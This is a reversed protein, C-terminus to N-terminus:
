IKQIKTIRVNGANEGLASMVAAVIVATIEDGGSAGSLERGSEAEGLARRKEERGFLNGILQTIFVLAILGLFVTGM